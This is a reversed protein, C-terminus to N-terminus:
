VSLPTELRSIARRSSKDGSCIDFIRARKRSSPFCRWYMMRSALGQPHEAKRVRSRSRSVSSSCAAALRVSFGWASSGGRCCASASSNACGPARGFSRNHALTSGHPGANRSKPPSVRIARTRRLVGRRVPASSRSRRRSPTAHHAGRRGLSDGARDDRVCRPSLGRRGGIGDSGRRTASRGRPDGKAALQGAGRLVDGSGRWVRSRLRAPHRGVRFRGTSARRRARLHNGHRDRRGRAHAGLLALLGGVCLPPLTGCVKSRM